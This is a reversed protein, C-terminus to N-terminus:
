PKVAKQQIPQIIKAATEPPPPTVTPQEWGLPQANLREEDFIRQMSWEIFAYPLVKWLFYIFKNGVGPIVRARKKYMARVGTRAVEWPMQSFRRGKRGARAIRDIVDKNTYTSGPCVCCVYIGYQKMEIRLTSSFSYVFSKSAAYISKNPIHMFSALSGVNLIYADENRRLLPIFLHTLAVLALNNILIMKTILGHDTEDFPCFNGFGANNVLVQIGYNETICWDLVEGPAEDRTLDVEFTNVSVGFRDRLSQAVDDLGSGPLAVLLLDKKMGAFEEAFAKGIGASAGTILVYPNSTM